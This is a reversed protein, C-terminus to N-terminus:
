LLRADYALVSTLIGTFASLPEGGSVRVRPLQYPTQTDQIASDFSFPDLTAGIYGDNYLDNLVLQREYLPDHHFPEGTPYCFFQVPVGLEHQLTAKSQVLEAQTSTYSPPQGINVHHVTHSAIQMGEDQLIRVQNWTLYRGGIMGTILYFVGRDHHALLAPLADTYMDEYGDDFTLIMPHPPLAKGYYLSDFLETMNISTYGQQQLWDLQANFDTTTVTLSYDLANYTPLNSVHHYMFVPVLLKTAPPTAPVLIPADLDAPGAVVVQWGGNLPILALTTSHFLGNRLDTISLSSLAGPSATADLSIHVLSALSYVRTTDPDLWPQVLELAGVQYGTFTVAGFKAREFHTFDDQGSYLRQADPALLSWLTAWDKHLFVQMFTQAAAEILSSYTPIHHSHTIAIPSQQVQAQNPAPWLMVGFWGALASHGVLASVVLLMSLLAFAGQYLHAPHLRRLTVPQTPQEEAQEVLEALATETPKIMM